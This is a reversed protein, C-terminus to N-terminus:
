ELVGRRFECASGSRIEELRRELETRDARLLGAIGVQEVAFSACAVGHVLADLLTEPRGASAHWAALMGGALADGAGTTDVVGHSTLAPVHLEGAGTVVAAGEAGLKLCLGEVGWARRSAEPDRPDGGLVRLEDANCFFWHCSTVFEQAAGPAMAAYSRMSDGALLSAGRLLRASEIQLPVPMSGVFAWGDYGEPIRPHWGAYISNEGSIEINVADRQVAHWRYTPADLVSVLGADVPRGAVAAILREQADRGVVGSMRVPGILSAALAFYLASGGLEDEVSGFGGELHDLAISGVVLLSM